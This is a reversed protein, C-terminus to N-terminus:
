KQPVNSLGGLGVLRVRFITASTLLQKLPQRGDLLVRVAAMAMIDTITGNYEVLVRSVSLQRERLRAIPMPRGRTWQRGVQEAEHQSSWRIEPLPEFQARQKWTALSGVYHQGPTESLNWSGM